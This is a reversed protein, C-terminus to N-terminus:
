LWLPNPETSESLVCTLVCSTTWRGCQLQWMIANNV